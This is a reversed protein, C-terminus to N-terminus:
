LVKVDEEPLEIDLAWSVREDDIGVAYDAWVTTYFGEKVADLATARVCHETAIGIVTVDQVDLRRLLDALKEGDETIGEFGSYAAEFMGKHVTIFPKETRDIEAKLVPAFDAGHTDAVCHVPWSDVFDPTESFHTGPDIHWDQTLVIHDFMERFKYNIKNAIREALATGGAVALSGGEVFDNQVDVVILAKAM